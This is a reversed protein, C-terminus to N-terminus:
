GTIAHPPAYRKPDHKHKVSTKIFMPRAERAVRVMEEYDKGVLLVKATEVVEDARLSRAFKTM